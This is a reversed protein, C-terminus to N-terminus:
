SCQRGHQRTPIPKRETFMAGLRFFSLLMQSRPQAVVRGDQDAGNSHTHADIFYKKKVCSLQFQLVIDTQNNM